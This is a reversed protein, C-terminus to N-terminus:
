AFHSMISKAAGQFHLSNFRIDEDLDLNLCLPVGDVM